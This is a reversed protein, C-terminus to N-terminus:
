FLVTPYQVAYFATVVHELMRGPGADNDHGVRPFVYWNARQAADQLGSAQWRFRLLLMFNGM